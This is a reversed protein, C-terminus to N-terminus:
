GPWSVKVRRFIAPMTRVIIPTMITWITLSLCICDHFLDKYNKCGYQQKGGALFLFVKGYIRGTVIEGFNKSVATRELQTYDTFIEGPKLNIVSTYGLCIGRMVRYLSEGLDPVIDLREITDNFQLGDRFYDRLWILVPLIHCIMYVIVICIKKLATVTERLGVPLEVSLAQVFDIEFAIFSESIVTVFTCVSIVVVLM